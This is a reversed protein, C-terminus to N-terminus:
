SAESEQWDEDAIYDGLPPTDEHGYAARARIFNDLYSGLLETRAEIADNYRNEQLDHLIQENLLLSALDSEGDLLSFLDRRDRTSIVKNAAVSAGDPLASAPVLDSVVGRPTTEGELQAALTEVTISAGSDPDVPELNWMAALIVKSDSRTARFVRLDPVQPLNSLAAANLLRQVSESEQGPVLCAAM